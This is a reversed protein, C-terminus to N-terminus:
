VRRLLCGLATCDQWGIPGSTFLIQDTNTPVRVIDVSNVTSPNESILSRVVHIQEPIEDVRVSVWSLSFVFQEASSNSRHYANGSDYENGLSM